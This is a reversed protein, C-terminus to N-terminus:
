KALEQDIVAKFSEYPQAGVLPTGNIFFAPTGSVGAATGEAVDNEVKEKYKDSDLCQNFAVMDLGVEQAWMKVDDVTYEVTGGSPDMAQQKEFMLDHLVWAKGQDNACEIAEGSKQAAPHFSLPYHRFYYAVKGTDIYDQKIKPFADTFFRRCFPCQLDSFEIITVKADKKGLPPLGGVAVDVKAPPEEVTGPAAVVNQAEKKRADMASLANKAVSQKPNSSDAAIEQLARQAIRAVEPDALRQEELVQIRSFLYGVLFVAILLLSYLFQVTTIQEIKKLFPSLPFLVKHTKKVAPTRKRSVVAKPQTKAM